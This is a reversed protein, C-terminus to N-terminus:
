KTLNFSEVTITAHLLLIEAMWVSARRSIIGEKRWKEERTWHKSYCEDEENKQVNDDSHAPLTRLNDCNYFTYCSRSWRHFQSTCLPRRLTLHFLQVTALHIARRGTGTRSERRIYFCVDTGCASSNPDREKKRRKKEGHTTYQWLFQLRCLPVLQELEISVRVNAFRVHLM